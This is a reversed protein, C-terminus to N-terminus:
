GGGAVADIVPHHVRDGAVIGTKEAVGAKLELVFRVPKEPGIGAESYPTGHRVADVKGAADIFVLDLPLVTNKMWFAVPRTQQFVFLMGHADDMTKRFMLGREREVEDDAIEVAFSRAGGDTDAILPAPDVPLIMPQEGAASLVQGQLLFAAVFPAFLLRALGSM